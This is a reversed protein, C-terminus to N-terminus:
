KHKIEKEIEEVEKPKLGTAKCVVDVTSGLSLLNKAVLYIGEKMGQEIGEKIGEERGRKEATNIASIKDKLAKQRSEYVLRAEKDLSLVELVKKASGIEKIKTKLMEIAESEPNEIFLLWDNLLDETNIDEIKLKPLEIFHIEALDTLVEGTEKEKFVFSNHVRKNSKLLEFDVINITISKLIRNYDEGEKM